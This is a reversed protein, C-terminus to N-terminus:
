IQIKQKKAFFEFLKKRLKCYLIIGLASINFSIAGIIIVNYSATIYWNPTYDSFLEIKSPRFESSVIAQIMPTFLEFISTRESGLYIILQLIGTVLFYFMFIITSQSEIKKIAYAYRRFNVLGKMLETLVLKFVSISVPILLIMVTLKVYESGYQSCIDSQSYFQSFSLNVCYSLLAFSDGLVLIDQRSLDKFKCNMLSM